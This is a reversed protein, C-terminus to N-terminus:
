YHRGRYYGYGSYGGYYGTGYYGGGHYGRDYYGGGCYGGDDWGLPVVVCGSLTVIAVLLIILRLLLSKKM